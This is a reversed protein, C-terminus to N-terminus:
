AIMVKRPFQSNDELFTKKKKSLDAATPQVEGNADTARAVLTHEGPLAGEWRYTFLKWSFQSNAADLTARQWPGNDIQVEVSKLPTGDNLVFGLVQYANGSKRVRAIVSKPRMRTVETEVFQTQPDSVDGSGGEGWITRYWRAQYNGLFRDEQLHVEALWKVNAVGYWGPMILRVPFGQNLTLPEGNLAYAILPEPKMANELTISRGFQQDLKLTQQRFAVDASGRDYGFFVVERAKSHVGLQKLVASLRVGTFKGCSSLGQIARPSNGSCEFGNVLEVSKMAKLDALTFEAPKNVMGTFKLRYKAPDIEPKMFHQTTFFQDKPTLMGDIKRIDLQRTAAGPVGAPNFNKPLDTFPVDTEGQALAPVSWDPLLALLSTAAL